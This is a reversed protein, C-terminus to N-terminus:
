LILSNLLIPSYPRRTHRSENRTPNASHSQNTTIEGRISKRWKAREQCASTSGGRKSQQSKLDCSLLTYIRVMRCICVLM